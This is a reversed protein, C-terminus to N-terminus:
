VKSPPTPWPQSLSAPGVLIARGAAAAMLGRRDDVQWKDVQWKPSHVIM